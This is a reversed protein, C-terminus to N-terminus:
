IVRVTEAVLSSSLFLSLSVGARAAHQALVPLRLNGNFSESRSSDGAPGSWGAGSTGCDGDSGIGYPSKGFNVQRFRVPPM